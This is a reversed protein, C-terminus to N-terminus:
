ERAGRARLLAALAEDGRELASSLPTAGDNAAAEIDAGHALLLDLVQAWAPGGKVAHVPTHGGAGRARALAPDSALLDALQGARGFAPWTSSTGATISCCIACSSTPRRPQRLGGAHCQARARPDRLASWPGAPAPRGRRQRVLGGRPPPRPWEGEARESRRGAGAAVPDGRPQQGSGPAPGPERDPRARGGAAREGWERRGSM